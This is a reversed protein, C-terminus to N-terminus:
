RSLSSTARGSHAVEQRIELLLEEAWAPMSGEAAHGGVSVTAECLQQDVRTLLADLRSSSDDSSESAVAAAPAAKELEREIQVLFDEAWAPLQVPVEVTAGRQESDRHALSARLAGIRASKFTHPTGANAADMGAGLSIVEDLLAGQWFMCNPAIREELREFQFRRRVRLQSSM